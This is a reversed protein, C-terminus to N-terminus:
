FITRRSGSYTIHEIYPAGLVLGVTMLSQWQGMNCVDIGYKLLLYVVACLIVLVFIEKGHREIPMYGM